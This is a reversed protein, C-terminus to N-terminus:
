LLLRGIPDLGEFGTSRDYIKQGRLYTERVIGTLELGEQTDVGNQRTDASPVSLAFLLPTSAYWVSEISEQLADGAKDGIMM